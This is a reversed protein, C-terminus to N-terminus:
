NIREQLPVNRLISQNTPDGKGDPFLTPFAMTALHSIQYENLPESEITPWPMPENASLQNRVAEIEQEQQEGVPLFSNMDTSNTYVIDESPNETPPGLDSMVDDNSIIENETEVTMLDAPIGNEPLSNLAHENIQLKAYHPNNQVLWLLANHVKERRVAVDRFSNDKGKVKVIIVSLDKPYRPLSTALEKVNQPLNVCHGSYGRQGGPKIYVRMIPLARAILMEEVQTLNQLETPVPSPIMANELSFKRPSKTDRACRSCIYCDPSRPTSNLPWAEQCITCQNIFFEISKSFKNINNKAWSQEHISGDKEIDFKNLYDQNGLRTQKEKESAQKTKRYERANEIRTQKEHDTEFARKAKRYERANELRTQKEHETESAQKGKRYERANELRTQKEHETESAQKAKRYERANELRTQKEHETESARKAKQCERANKLTKQKEHQTESAQKAKRYESANELRTQKEDETESARKAKQYERTNGLRTQKETETEAAQKAKKYKRANQLRSQKQSETLESCKQKVHEKESESSALGSIQTIDCNLQVTVGKVEFPTENGPPVTSQFYIVLSEISDVSALICKGFPHPIGYLDRSHSDFVKFTGESTKFIAVTNCGITLLCHQYNLQTEAFLNTLANYISYYPLATNAMFLDGAFPDGYQM